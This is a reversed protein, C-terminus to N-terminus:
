EEKKRILALSKTEQHIIPKWEVHSFAAVLSIPIFTFMFIPFTFLSLIKKRPRTDINKWETALTLLGSILILLYARQLGRFLFQSFIATEHNMFSNLSLIMLNTLGIMGSLFGLPLIKMLMDFAYFSRKKFITKFLSFGYKFFVQYFGKSWRLRQNWSQEFTIPQEDYFIANECFAIKNGKITHHISFEIDEVLTHFPWGQQENIIKASVLFGTGSIACGSGLLMRSRNIYQSEKLFYLSQGASLWNSDYNKSNRYSTIIDYGCSFTKNMETIYHEDLLNDADFVLYADVVEKGHETLIRNFLFNLAYGKGVQGTNQRRYVIAGLDRSIKATNDTCNDAIVFIKIKEAPYTQNHISKILDGIVAEENRAAIIIGYTHRPAHKPSQIPKKKFPVVLYFLRYSYLLTIVVFFILNIRILLNIDM